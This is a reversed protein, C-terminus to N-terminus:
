EVNHDSSVPTPLRDEVMLRLLRGAAARVHWVEQYLFYDAPDQTFSNTRERLRFETGHLAGEHATKSRKNYLKGLRKADGAPLALKLAQRFQRAYGVYRDCKECCECKSLPVFRAGIAEVVSVYIVAALSPSTAEIARAHYCASVLEVVEPDAHMKGVTAAAFGSPALERVEWNDKVCHALSPHEASPLSALTFEFPQPAEVVEWFVDTDLTLAACLSMLQDNARKMAVDPRYGVAAGRAVVPYIVEVQGGGGLRRPGPVRAYRAYPAVPQALTIGSITCSRDLVLPGAVPSVPAVVAWWPHECARGVDARAGRIAAVWVHEETRAQGVDTAEVALLWRGDSLPIAALATELTPGSFTYRRYSYSKGDQEFPVAAM